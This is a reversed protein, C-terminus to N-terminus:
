YGKKEPDWGFARCMTSRDLWLSALRLRLERESIEAGYQRRIRAAALELIAETLDAVRRLKDAVSMRRYGEIVVAEARRATDSPGVSMFFDLM